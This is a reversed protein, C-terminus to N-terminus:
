KYQIINEAQNQATSHLVFLDHNLNAITKILLILIIHERKMDTQIYIQIWM